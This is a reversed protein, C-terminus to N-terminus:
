LFPCDEKTSHLMAEIFSKSPKITESVFKTTEFGEFGGRFPTTLSEYSSLTSCLFCGM